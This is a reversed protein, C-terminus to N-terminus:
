NSCNKTVDLCKFIKNKFPKEIRLHHQPKEHKEHKENHMFM